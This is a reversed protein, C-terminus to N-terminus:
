VEGSYYLREFVVKLSVYGGRGGGLCRCCGEMRGIVSLRGLGRCWVIFTWLTLLGEELM